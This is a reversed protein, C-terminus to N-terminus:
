NVRPFNCAEYTLSLSTSFWLVWWALAHLAIWPSAVHQEGTAKKVTGSLISWLSVHNRPVTGWHSVSTHLRRRDIKNTVTRESEKFCLLPTYYSIQSPLIQRLLWVPNNTTFHNFSREWWRVAIFLGISVFRDLLRRYRHSITTYTGVHKRM